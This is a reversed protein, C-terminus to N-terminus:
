AEVPSSAEVPSTTEVPSTAEVPSTTEVESGAAPVENAAASELLPESPAPQPLVVQMQGGTFVAEFTTACRVCAIRTKAGTPAVDVQGKLECKPCVIRM